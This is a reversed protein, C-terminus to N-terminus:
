SGEVEDSTERVRKRWRQNVVQPLKTSTYELDLVVFPEGESIVADIIPEMEDRIRKQLLLTQCGHQVFKSTSTQRANLESPTKLRLCCM